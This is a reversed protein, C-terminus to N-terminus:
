TTEKSYCFDLFQDVSYLVPIRLKEAEKIEGLTGQSTEWGPVLILADCRRLIELTGDIFHQETNIGEFNISNLHPCIAVHGAKWVEKAVEKARDINEQIQYPYTDRYKGAIYAIQM